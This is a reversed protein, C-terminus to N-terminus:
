PGRRGVYVTSAALLFMDKSIRHSIPDDPDLLRGLVDRDQASILETLSEHKLFGRLRDMVYDAEPPALPAPLDLLFSRATVDVLGARRLARPWGYPMPVADPLDRRMQAFWRDQAADLRLELGPEGVGLDWPLSRGRLGGEGLGLRGGPALRVSLDNLIAQQNPLHHVVGSAWIVDATGDAIPIMSALDSRITEMRDACGAEDARRGTAELLAPEDDVAQVKAQSGAALAFAVAMGGAGCGLDILLRDDDDVLWTAIQSDVASNVDAARSLTVLMSAWPLDKTAGHQHSM